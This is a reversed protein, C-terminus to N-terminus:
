PDSELQSVGPRTPQDTLQDTPQPRRNFRRNPPPARRGGSHDIADSPDLGPDQATEIGGAEGGCVCACVCVVLRVEVCM